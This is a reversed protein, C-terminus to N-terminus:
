SSGDDLPPIHAKHSQNSNASFTALNKQPEWFFVHVHFIDISMGESLNSPDWAWAEVNPRHDDLWREVFIEIESDLLYTRSWLTYHTVGAPTEYPFLNPEIAIHVGLLSTSFIWDERSMGSIRDLQDMHAQKRQANDPTREWYEIKLVGRRKILSSFPPFEPRPPQLHKTRNWDAEWRLKRSEESESFTDDDNTEHQRNRCYPSRTRSHSRALRRRRNSQSSSYRNRSAVNISPSRRRKALPNTSSDNRKRYYTNRNPNAYKIDNNNYYYRINKRTSNKRHFDEYRLHAASSNSKSDVRNHVLSRQINSSYRTSPKPM